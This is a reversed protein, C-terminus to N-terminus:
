LADFLRQSREDCAAFMGNVVMFLASIMRMVAMLARVM